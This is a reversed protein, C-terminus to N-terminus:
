CYSPTHLARAHLALVISQLAGRHKVACVVRKLQLVAVTCLPAGATFTLDNTFVVVSDIKGEAEAAKIQAM